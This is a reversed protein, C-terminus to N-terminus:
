ALSYFNCHGECTKLKEIRIEPNKCAFYAMFSPTIGFKALESAHLSKWHKLYSWAVAEKNRPNVDPPLEWHERKMGRTLARIEEPDPFKSTHKDEMSRLFAVCHSEPNDVMEIREQAEQPRNNFAANM